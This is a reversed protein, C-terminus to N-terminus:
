TEYCNQTLTIKGQHIDTSSSLPMHPNQRLPLQHAPAAPPHHRGVLEALRMPVLVLIIPLRRRRGELVYIIIGELEQRQRYTERM